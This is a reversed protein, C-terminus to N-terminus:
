ECREPRGVPMLCLPEEQRSLILTHKVRASDFESVAVSALGLATCQLLMREVARGAEIPSYCM